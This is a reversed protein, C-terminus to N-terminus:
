CNESVRWKDVLTEFLQVMPIEADSASSKLVQVVKCRGRGDM